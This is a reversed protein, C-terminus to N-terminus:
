ELKKLMGDVIAQVKAKDANMGLAMLQEADKELAEGKAADTKKLEFIAPMILGVESGMQGGKAIKELSAKIVDRPPAKLDAKRNGEGPSCGALVMALALVTLCAGCKIWSSPM